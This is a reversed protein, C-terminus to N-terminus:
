STLYDCFKKINIHLYLLIEIAGIARWFIIKSLFIKLTPIGVEMTRTVIKLTIIHSIENIFAYGRLM